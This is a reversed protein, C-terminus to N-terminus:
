IMRQEADYASIAEAASCTGENIKKIAEIYNAADQIANNLGQGRHPPMAHAADGALTVRGQHNDWLVPDKWLMCVDAPIETGEPVWKLASKWPDAWLDANSQLFRLKEENSMTAVKERHKPDEEFVSWLLQFIWTEPKKRDVVDLISIMSFIKLEKNTGFNMIPHFSSTEKLYRAQEATFSAKFNYMTYPMPTLAATDGLLSTRLLSKAGDAGVLHTGSTSTGDEFKVTVTTDSATFSALRMNYRIHLGKSFLKRMKKRSVRRIGVSSLKMLTEGSQADHFSLSPMIGYEDEYYQDCDISKINELIEDPLCSNLHQSGWHLAM